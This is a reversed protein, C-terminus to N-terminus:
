GGLPQPVQAVRDRLKRLPGPAHDGAVVQLVALQRLDRFLEAHGLRPRRLQSGFPEVQELLRQLLEEALPRPGTGTGTGVGLTYPRPPALRVDRGDCPAGVEPGPGIDLGIEVTRRQACRSDGPLAGGSRSPELFRLGRRCPVTYRDVSPDPQGQGLLFIMPRRMLLLM